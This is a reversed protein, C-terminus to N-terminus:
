FPLDDILDETAVPFPDGIMCVAEAYGYKAARKFFKLAEKKNKRVGNGFYYCLGLAFFAPIFGKSASRKFWKVADKNNEEDGDFDYYDGAQYNDRETKGWWWKYTEGINIAMEKTGYYYWEGLFCMAEPNGMEASKRYATKVEENSANTEELCWAVHLLADADGQEASKRFWHLAKAYDKEIGEGKYYSLGLNFQAQVCDQEASKEYWQNAVVRDEDIGLGYFYCCGLNCQWDRYGKEAAKKIWSVPRGHVRYEEGMFGSNWKTTAVNWSICNLAGGKRVVELAPVGIVKCSPMADAIQQLAQEDEPIGLQPVLVLKGIQLFNIYAWSRRHKQKVNYELPIVEVYKELRKLFQHAKLTDFDAYNTMLVRNGGVYHVIGDSHGLIENRDWPLFIIDCEFADELLRHIENRLKDKNEYFVKETMVIMDDCRVVNGGDIVLNLEIVEGDQRLCEINGVQNVDTITRQYYKTQLYDPAYKYFALRKERTQIPMYDRCWIDKTHSLLRHDIDNEKLIKDISKYLTPCREPLLDSFFVTDTLSDVMHNGYYRGYLSNWNTATM